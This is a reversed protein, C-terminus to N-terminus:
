PSVAFAMMTSPLYYVPLAAADDLGALKMQIDLPFEIEAFASNKHVSSASLM